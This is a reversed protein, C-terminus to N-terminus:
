QKIVKLIYTKSEANVKCFYIGTPLLSTNVVVEQKDTEELKFNVSEIIKGQLDSLQVSAIGSSGSEVKITLLDSFPNPYGSIAQESLETHQENVSEFQDVRLEYPCTVDNIKYIWIDSYSINVSNNGDTIDHDNSNTTGGILFGGDPSSAIVHARDDYTGGFTKDFIKNGQGDIKIVFSDYYDSTGYHGGTFDIDSSTTYGTLLYGGDALPKISKVTEPGSGGITKDWQKVGNADIKILLIDGSGNNGDTVDFDSIFADGGLLYGGDHAPAICFLEDTGSSGLSKNWVENGSDDIKIVWFDLGGNNGDTVDYDNSRTQGAVIYGGDSAPIISTIRDESSGGFTKDWQKVGADNIKIIWIDIGGNNGDTVDLDNSTTQGGLLFGNDPTPLIASIGEGESGGYTKDWLKTGASNIKLIWADSFGSIDETVDFEKKTASGGLLFGGDATPAIAGLFDVFDTGFTKDWLKTGNFDTKVVWMNATGNNGDTIDFDDSYTTGGIVYGTNTTIIDTIYEYSRGGYTKDWLISAEPSPVASVTVATRTQSPCGNTGTAEAYYTTLAANIPPPTFVNGTFISTGGSSTTYWNITTGSSATATLTANRGLCVFDGTATPPAPTPLVVISVAQRKPNVCAGKSAEVYYTINSLPTVIFPNGIFIPVGGIPQTYWKFITPSSATALISASQGSCLTINPQAVKPEPVQIQAYHIRAENVTNPASGISVAVRDFIQSPSFSVNIKNASIFKIKVSSSTISALDGNYTANYYSAVNINGIRTLTFPPGSYSLQIIVTDGPYGLTPFILKQETYGNSSGHGGKLTSYTSIDDDIADFPNLVFCGPCVGFTSNIQTTASICPVPQAALYQVICYNFMVALVFLFSRNPKPKIKKM